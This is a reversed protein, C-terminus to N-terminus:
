KHHLCANPTVLGCVVRVRKLVRIKQLNEGAIALAPIIRGQCLPLETGLLFPGSFNGGDGQPAMRSAQWDTGSALTTEQPSILRTSIRDALPIIFTPSRKGLRPCMRGSYGFGM